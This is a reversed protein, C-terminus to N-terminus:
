IVGDARLRAREDASLGLREGYVLDNHQGLLPAAERPGGPSEPLKFPPGLDRFRGLEPHELEVLYGRERLHPHEVAEEITFVATVPVGAAQCREMIELKGHQMTWEEILPYIADANQARVFMDQFMELQAWDPNGMVEALGNWQGPELALM